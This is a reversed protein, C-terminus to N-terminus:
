ALRTPGDGVAGGVGGRDKRVEARITAVGDTGRATAGMRQSAGRQQRIPHQGTGGHGTDSREASLPQVEELPHATLVM